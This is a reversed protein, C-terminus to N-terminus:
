RYLIRRIAVFPLPAFDAGAGGPDSEILIGPKVGEGV